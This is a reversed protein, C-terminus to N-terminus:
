KVRKLTKIKIGISHKLFDENLSLIFITKWTINFRFVVKDTFINIIEDTFMNIIKLLVSSKLM